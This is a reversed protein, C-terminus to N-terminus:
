YQSKSAQDFAEWSPILMICESPSGGARGVISALGPRFRRPQVLGNPEDKGAWYIICDPEKKM